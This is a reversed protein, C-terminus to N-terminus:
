AILKFNIQHNEFWNKYEKNKVLATISALSVSGEKSWSMGNHKQRYSVVIDNMKEGINSSNRLGLNKRIEYCPIFQRNREFYGILQNLADENKVDRRNINQLYEIAKDLLGYWLLHTVEELFKNRKDRGKIALSLQM